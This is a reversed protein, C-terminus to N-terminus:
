RGRGELRSPTAVQAQWRGGLKVNTFFIRLDKERADIQAVPGVVKFFYAQKGVPLIAALMRDTPEGTKLAPSAQSVVPKLEKPASYSHIQDAEGCGFLVIGCFALTILGPCQRHLQFRVAM